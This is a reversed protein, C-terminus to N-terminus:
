KPLFGAVLAGIRQASPLALSPSRQDSERLDLDVQDCRKEHAPVQREELRDLSRRLLFLTAGGPFGHNAADAVIRQGATRRISALEPRFPGPV